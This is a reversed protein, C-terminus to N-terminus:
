LFYIEPHRGQRGEGRGRGRRGDGEERRRAAM